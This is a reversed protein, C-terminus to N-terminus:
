VDNHQKKYSILRGYIAQYCVIYLKKDNSIQLESWYMECAAHVHEDNNSAKGPKLIVIHPDPINSCGLPIDDSIKSHLHELNFVTVTPHDPTQSLL